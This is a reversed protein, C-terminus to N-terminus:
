KRKYIAVYPLYNNLINLFNDVNQLNHNLSCDDYFYSYGKKLTKFENELNIILAVFHGNYPCCILGRLIYEDKQFSFNDTLQKAISLLNNKINNFVHILNDSIDGIDYCFFFESKSDWRNNWYLWTKDNFLIKTEM